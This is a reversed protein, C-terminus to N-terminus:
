SAYRDARRDAEKARDAATAVQAWNSLQVRGAVPTPKPFKLAPPSGAPGREAAPAQPPAKV